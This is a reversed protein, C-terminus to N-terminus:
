QKDFPEAKYKGDNVYSILREWPTKLEEIKKVTIVRTM